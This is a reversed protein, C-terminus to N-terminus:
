VWRKKFDSIRPFEVNIYNENEVGAQFYKVLLSESLLKPQSFTLTSSSTNSNESVFELDHNMVNVAHLVVREGYLVLLLM